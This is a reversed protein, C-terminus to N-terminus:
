AAPKVELVDVRAPLPAVTSRANREAAEHRAMQRSLPLVGGFFVGSLFCPLISVALANGLGTGAALCMAVVLAYVLPTGVFIGFLVDNGLEGDSVADGSSLSSTHDPTVAAITSV